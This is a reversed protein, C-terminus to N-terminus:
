QLNVNGDGYMGVHHKEGSDNHRSNKEGDGPVDYQSVAFVHQSLFYLLENKDTSTGSCFHHQNM